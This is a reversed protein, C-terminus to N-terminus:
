IVPPVINYAADRGNSGIKWVITERNARSKEPRDYRRDYSVFSIGDDVGVWLCYCGEIVKEEVNIVETECVLAAILSCSLRFLDM